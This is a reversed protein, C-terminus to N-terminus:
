KLLAAADDKMAPSASEAAIRRLVEASAADPKGSRKAIRIVAAEAEARDSPKDLFGAATALAEPGALEAIASLLARQEDVNGIM